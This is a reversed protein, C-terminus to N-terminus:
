LIPPNVCFHQVSLTCYHVVSPLCILLTILQIMHVKANQRGNELSYLIPMHYLHDLQLMKETLFLLESVEIKIQFLFQERSEHQTIFTILKPM